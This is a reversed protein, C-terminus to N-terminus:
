LHGRARSMFCGVSRAAVAKLNSSGSECRMQMLMWTMGQRDLLRHHAGLHDVIGRNTQILVRPEYVVLLQGGYDTM